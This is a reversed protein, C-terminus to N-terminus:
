IFLYIDAGCGRPFRPWRRHFPTDANSRADVNVVFESTFKSSGGPRVCMTSWPIFVVSGPREPLPLRTSLAQLSSSGSSLEWGTCSRFFHHSTTTSAGRYFLDHLPTSYLSCDEWSTPQSVSSHRMAMTLDSCFWRCWWPCCWRGPFVSVYVTSRASHPLATRGPRRFM